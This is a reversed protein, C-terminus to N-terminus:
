DTAQEDIIRKIEHIALEVRDWSQALQRNNRFKAYMEAAAEGTYQNGDIEVFLGVDEVNMMRTHNEDVPDHTTRGYSLMLEGIEKKRSLTHGEGLGASSVKTSYYVADALQQSSFGGATLIGIVRNREEDNTVDEDQLYKLCSVLFDYERQAQM